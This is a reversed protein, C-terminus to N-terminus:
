LKMVLMSSEPSYIVEEHVRGSAPTPALTLVPEKAVYPSREKESAKLVRHAKGIHINFGKENKFCLECHKCKFVQEPISSTSTVSGPLTSNVPSVSATITSSTNVVSATPLFLSNSAPISRRTAPGLLPRGLGPKEIKMRESLAVSRTVSRREDGSILNQDRCM